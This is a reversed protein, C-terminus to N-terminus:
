ALTVGGKGINHGELDYFSIFFRDPKIGLEKEVFATVQTVFIKNENPGLHGISEISAVAGPASADGGFSLICDGSVLCVFKQEPKRLVDALLPTIKEVFDNPIKIKPINTFLRFCPM